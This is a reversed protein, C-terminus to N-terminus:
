ASVKSSKHSKILSQLILVFLEVIELLSFFSLSVILGMIGGLNAILSSLTMAPTVQLLTYELQPYYVRIEVLSQDWSILSSVSLDYEISNCELPCFDSACTVADINVYRYCGIDTTNLCPRVNSNLNDYGTFFCNCKSIINKQRCLDFCDKQRYTRKSKIIHDYLESSYYTLDSCQTYPSPTNEVFTRKIVINTLDGTKANIGESLFRPRLTRNHVFVKM